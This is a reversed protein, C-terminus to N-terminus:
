PNEGGEDPRERQMKNADTTYADDTVPIIRHHGNAVDRSSMYTLDDPQESEARRVVFTVFVAFGAILATVVLVIISILDPHTVFYIALVLWLILLVATVARSAPRDRRYFV